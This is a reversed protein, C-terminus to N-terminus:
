LESSDPRKDQQQIVAKKLASLTIDFRFENNM